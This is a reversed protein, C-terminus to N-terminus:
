GRRKRLDSAWQTVGVLVGPIALALGPLAFALALAWHWGWVHWAGYFAGITVPLTFRLVLALVIAGWAWWVGMYDRIGDFGAVMQALGFALFALIALGGLVAAM